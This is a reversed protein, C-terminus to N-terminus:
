RRKALWSDVEAWKEGEKVERGAVRVAGVIADWLKWAIQLDGAFDVSHPFWEEPGKIKAQSKTEESTPDPNMALEDLYSKMAIGLGCDNDDLFPLDLGLDLWDSRDEREADGHLLLSAVIMEALDRLSNRVASIMSHYALHNRSLPGTFGIPKHRLKGLSAVRSVLLCNRKDKESGRLPVGTYSPFMIDANLLKLRLLEIGIFVPEELSDAPDLSSIASQLAKGWATLEHKENVYGRLQLFRWLTNAIIEDKSKLLNTLDKASTTRAAFEPDSLSNVAFTLTGPKAATPNAQELTSGKVHWAAVVSYPPPILDKPKLVREGKKDFWFRVTVDKRHYYFHLTQALLSLAQTRIPSLQDRVLRHYEESDGNDLPPMELLEGSTIWNLVNPGVVGKSLYFYLEEPLRQGIFEHVDFPAHEVDLPEVRGDETFVVHHKVALRGRKYKDLYGMQQVQAHDQYHTCVATVSRNFAFMMTISDRITDSKRPDDLPPFTPLFSSGSLMCADIFMDDSIGRSKGLEEQCARKSLWSFQLGVLDLKTIVKDVDFLFLESSGVIADVFQKPHKELYALQGWASYPAVMFELNHTRLIKQFFRFLSEPKISAIVSNSSSSGQQALTTYSDRGSNGFTEVAQVAQHQDYLEWARTNALASDNLNSFPKDKKAIDMGSFVFLPVIGNRKLTELDSEIYTKLAFPFGGLASLLPEKSPPNNLLRNLYHAAEIGLVADKLASLPYTQARLTALEDFSRVPM